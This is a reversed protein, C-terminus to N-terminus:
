EETSTTTTEEVTTEEVVEITEEKKAAAEAVKAEYWALKGTAAIEDIDPKTLTEVKILYEAIAVLLDHNARLVEEARRHCEFIIKRVEGDIEHAVVDSFNKEKLYDRGLFVNGSQEEYQIPGLDSMGYEAVMARAIKTGRKIDDYAGTTIENFTIEEAVRGGLLGTITDLLSQKTRLFTEEEPTM